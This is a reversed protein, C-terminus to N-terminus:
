DVIHLKIKKKFTDEDHFVFIKFTHKSYNEIYENVTVACTLKIEPLYTLYQYKNDNKKEYRDFIYGIYTKDPNNKKNKEHQELIDCKFQIKRIMRSSLNIYELREIWDNYFSDSKESLIDPNIQKILAINNLLDVLRRIPSSAQLYVNIDINTISNYQQNNYLEYSAANNRLIQIHTRINEPLTDPISEDKKQNLSKFIGVKSNHLYKAIYHNIYTMSKLVLESTSKARFFSKIKDYGKVHPEINDSYTFNKSIYANCISLKHYVSTNDKITIDLVFSVHYENENLSCLCESLINPLMPRKKDPLYISSIRNSFSSWLELYDMILAVNSIYISITNSAENWSLADDHDVSHHNDISFIYYEDKNRHEINYKEAIEKIIEDNTRNKIKRIADKTFKQISCNLSKTYLLYEYFNNLENVPGIVQTIQGYPALHEWNLFEFTIYLKSIHKQFSYKKEYPILFSPLRKDDPNCKYLYKKKIKGHTKTIDLVGAIYKSCRTMSHKFIVKNNHYDFNDNNFMKEKLPNIEFENIPEFSSSNVIEYDSYRNNHIIIKYM